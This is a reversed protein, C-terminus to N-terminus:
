HTVRAGEISFHVDQRIFENSQYAVFKNEHANM